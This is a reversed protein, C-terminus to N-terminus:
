EFYENCVEELCYKGRNFPERDIWMGNTFDPVPVPMSGMAISQESLCTIAMWAATDYVDIPSKENNIASQAFASLVLFDMGGHGGEHIGDKAYQKWLPHEYKNRYTEFSEWNHQPSEGDIYISDKDEMYIGKTGQVRYNRSYPRPLTCDHILLITEGHACKIMTTVIDGQTFHFTSLDYGKPLNDLIGEHLGRAKSAMSTLTVFRNGRNINLMKAIPGLQHTPYLDGNRNMFNFLRGHRTERGYTIEDRLDHQYGGQTHIIEGFVGQRQMNFLALENRDYCCNELIMCFKGTEESVRVMQWCEEISAAGGVEFAIHKGARMADIAIRSHTIWTTCCLIADIDDKKLLEKYDLYMEPTIGTKERVIKVGNEARDIYKDCVATVKVGDVSLLESLMGSGRGSIGIVGFNASKGAM